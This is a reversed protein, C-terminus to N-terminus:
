TKRRFTECLYKENEKDYGCFVCQSIYLKVTHEDYEGMTFAHSSLKHGCVCKKDMEDRWKKPNIWTTKIMIKM